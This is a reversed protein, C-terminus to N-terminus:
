IGARGIAELNGAREIVEATVKTASRVILGDYDGIRQLLEEPSLDLIVDVEFDRELLEIGPDALKEPVLIKLGEGWEQLLGEPGRRSGQRTRRPLRLIGARAGHGCHHRHHRLRRLIRLTRHPLYKRGDRGARWRGTYRARPLDYARAAQRRCGRAGM